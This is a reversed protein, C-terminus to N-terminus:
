GYNTIRGPSTQRSQSAFIAIEATVELCDARLDVWLGGQPVRILGFGGSRVFGGADVRRRVFCGLEARGHPIRRAMLRPPLTPGDGGSLLPM